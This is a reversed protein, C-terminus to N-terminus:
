SASREPKPRVTAYWTRGFLPRGEPANDITFTVRDPRYRDDSYEFAEGQDTYAIRIERLLPAGLEVDLLERDYEDAQVADIAHRAVGVQLGQSIFYEYISGADPDHGFLLDGWQRAFTTREVMVPHGDILRQRRLQVVQEGPEVDLHCAVDQSAARRAIETTHQGPERGLMVAWRSFSVFSDFPQAMEQRQVVPPKGRGGAILGESRLALLAQRVPGRSGGWRLCLEAESPVATGVPLEGATIQERLDATIREHLPVTM